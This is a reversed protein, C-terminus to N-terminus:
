LFINFSEKIDDVALGILMNPITFTMIAMFAIFMFYAVDNYFNIENWKANMGCKTSGPEHCYDEKFAKFM